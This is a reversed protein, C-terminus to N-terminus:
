TNKFLLWYGFAIVGASAIYALVMAIIILPVSRRLSEFALLPAWALFGHVAALTKDGNGEIRLHTKFEGDQKKGSPFTCLILWWYRQFSYPRGELKTILGM